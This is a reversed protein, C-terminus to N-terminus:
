DADDLSSVGMAIAFVPAQRGLCVASVTSAPAFGGRSEGVAAWDLRPGAAAASGVLVCNWTEQTPNSGVAITGEERDDPSLTPVAAALGTGLVSMVGTAAVVLAM